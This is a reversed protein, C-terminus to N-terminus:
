LGSARTRRFVRWCAVWLAIAIVIVVIREPWDDILLGEYGRSSFTIALPLTSVYIALGVLVSRWRLHRRTRDLAQKELTPPLPPTPPLTVGDAHGARCALEPDSRLWEEVLARTDDSAEGALYVPLLDKVVDRSVKV